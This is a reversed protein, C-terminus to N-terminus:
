SQMLTDLQTKQELFQNPVVTQAVASGETKLTTNLTSLIGDLITYLDASNNKFTLKGGKSDIKINGNKDINVQAKTTTVTLAGDTTADIVISKTYDSTNFQSFPIAIAGFPTYSKAEEDIIVDNSKKSFMDPSFSRPYLVVVKDGKQPTTKVVISGTVYQAYVCPIVRMDNINQAVSMEVTVIGDGVEQIIGFDIICARRLIASVANSFTAFESQAIFNSM